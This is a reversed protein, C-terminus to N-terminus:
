SIKEIIEVSKIIDGEVDIIMERSCVGSPRYKYVM